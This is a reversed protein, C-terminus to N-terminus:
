DRINTSELHEKMFEDTSNACMKKYYHFYFNLSENYFCAGVLPSLNSDATMCYFCRVSLAKTLPDCRVIQDMPDACVRAM